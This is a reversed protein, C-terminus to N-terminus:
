RDVVSFLFGRGEKGWFGDMLIGQIRDIKIMWFYWRHSPINRALRFMAQFQWTLLLLSMSNLSSDVIRIWRWYQDTASHTFRSDLSNPVQEYFQWILNHKGHFNWTESALQRHQRQRERNSKKITCKTRSNCMVLMMWWECSAYSIVISQFSKNNFWWRDVDNLILYINKNNVSVKDTCCYIVFSKTWRIWCIKHLSCYLWFDM